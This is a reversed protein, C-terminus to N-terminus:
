IHVILLDSLRESVPVLGRQLQSATNANPTLTLWIGPARDTVCGHAGLGQYYRYLEEQGPQLGLDKQM